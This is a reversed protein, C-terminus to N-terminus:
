TTMHEGKKTPNTQLCKGCQKYEKETGIHHKLCTARGNKPCISCFNDGEEEHERCGFISYCAGCTILVLKEMTDGREVSILHKDHPTPSYV